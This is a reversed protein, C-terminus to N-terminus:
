RHKYCYCSGRTFNGAGDSGRGALAHSVTSHEARCQGLAAAMDRVEFEALVDRSRQACRCLQAGTHAGACVISHHFPQPMKHRKGRRHVAALAAAGQAKEDGDGAQGSLCNEEGAAPPQHLTRLRHVFSQVPLLAQPKLLASGPQGHFPCQGGAFVAKCAIYGALEDAPQQKSQRQKGAVARQVEDRRHLAAAVDIHGARHLCGETHLAMPQVFVSKGDRAPLM